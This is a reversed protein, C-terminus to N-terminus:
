LRVGLRVSFFGQRLQLASRPVTATLACTLTSNFGFSINKPESLSPINRNFFHVRNLPCTHVSGGQVGVTGQLYVTTSSFICDHLFTANIKCCFVKFRNVARALIVNIGNRSRRRQVTTKIADIEKFLEAANQDVFAGTLVGRYECVAVNSAL